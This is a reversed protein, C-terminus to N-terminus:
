CPREKLGNFLTKLKLSRRRKCNFYFKNKKICKAQIYPRKDKLINIKIKIIVM